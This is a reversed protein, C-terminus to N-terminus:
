KRWIGYFVQKSLLLGEQLMWWLDQPPQLAAAGEESRLFASPIEWSAGIDWFQGKRQWFSKTVPVVCSFHTLMRNSNLFFVVRLNGEDWLREGTFIRSASALCGSTNGKKGKIFETPQRASKWLTWNCDPDSCYNPFKLARPARKM